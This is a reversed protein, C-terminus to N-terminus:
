YVGMLHALPAVIVLLVFWGYRLQWCLTRPVTENEEDV